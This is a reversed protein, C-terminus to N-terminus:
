QLFLPALIVKDCIRSQNTENNWNRQFIIHIRLKPCGCCVNGRTAYAPTCNLITFNYNEGGVGGAMEGQKGRGGVKPIPPTKWDNSCRRCVASLWVTVAPRSKTMRAVSGLWGRGDVAPKNM